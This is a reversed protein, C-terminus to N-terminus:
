SPSHGSPTLSALSANNFVSTRAPEEMTSPPSKNLLSTKLASETDSTSRSFKNLNAQPATHSRSQLSCHPSRTVHRCNKRHYKWGSHRPPPLRMSDSVPSTDKQPPDPKSSPLSSSLNRHVVTKCKSKSLFIQTSSESNSSGRKSSNDSVSGNNCCASSDYLVSCLSAKNRNTPNHNVSLIKSASRKAPALNSSRRFLLSTNSVLAVRTCVNSLHRVFCSSPVGPEGPVSCCSHGQDDGAVRSLSSM